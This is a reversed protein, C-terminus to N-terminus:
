LWECAPVSETDTSVGYWCCRQVFSESAQFFLESSSPMDCGLTGGALTQRQDPQFKLRMGTYTVKEQHGERCM